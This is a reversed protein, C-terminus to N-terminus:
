GSFDGVFAMEVFYVLSNGVCSSQDPHHDSEEKDHRGVGFEAELEGEGVAEEGILLSTGEASGNVEEFVYGERDVSNQVETAIADKPTLVREERLRAVLHM